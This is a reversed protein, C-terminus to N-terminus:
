TFVKRSVTQSFHTCLKTSSSWRLSASPRLDIGLNPNLTDNRFDYEALLPYELEICRKQLTEIKDQDVEFTLIELRRLAEDDDDDAGADIRSYYTDIDEPVADVVEGDGEQTVSTSQQPQATNADSSTGAIKLKDLQV